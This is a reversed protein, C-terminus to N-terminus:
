TSTWQHLCAPCVREEEVIRSLEQQKLFVGEFDLSKAQEVM